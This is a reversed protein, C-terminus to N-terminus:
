IDLIVSGPARLLSPSADLLSELEAAPMPRAILFGQIEQCGRERLLSFQRKTEVGEATVTLGLRRGIAIVTDIIAASAEDTDMQQVFSQDIKLTDIPFRSLYSLSSYGTGFDDLSLRVGLSKLSHMTRIAQEVNSVLM